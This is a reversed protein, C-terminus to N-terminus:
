KLVDDCIDNCLTVYPSNGYEKYKTRSYQDYCGQKLEWPIDLYSELVSHLTVLQRHNLCRCMCMDKDKDKNPIIRILENVIISKLRKHEAEKRLRKDEEKIQQKIEALSQANQREDLEQNRNETLENKYQIIERCQKYENQCQQLANQCEPCVCEPCVCEPYAAYQPCLIPAPPPPCQPCVVPAPPPPCQPSVVPAPCEQTCSIAITLSLLTEIIIIPRM